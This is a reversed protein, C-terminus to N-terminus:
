WPGDGFVDGCVDAFNLHAKDITLMSDIPDTMSTAEDISGEFTRGAASIRPNSSLQGLRAVERNLDPSSENSGIESLRHCAARGDDGAPTTAVATVAPTALAAPKAPQDDDSGCAALLPLVLVAALALLHRTKTM